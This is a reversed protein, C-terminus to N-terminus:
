ALVGVEYRLIKSSHYHECYNSYVSALGLRFGLGHWGGAQNIGSDTGAISGSDDPM